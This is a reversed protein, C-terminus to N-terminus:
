SVARVDEARKLWLAFKRLQAALLPGLTRCPVFMLWELSRSRHNLAAVTVFVSGTVVTPPGDHHPLGDIDSM